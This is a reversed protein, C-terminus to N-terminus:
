VGSPGMKKSKVAREERRSDRKRARYCDDDDEPSCFRQKGQLIQGCRDCQPMRGRKLQEILLSWFLGLVGWARQVPVTQTLIKQGEPSKLVEEWSRYHMGFRNTMVDLAGDDGEEILAPWVSADMQTTWGQTIYPSATQRAEWFARESDNRSTHALEAM